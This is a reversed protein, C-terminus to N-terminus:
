PNRRGRELWALFHAAILAAFFLFGALFILGTELIWRRQGEREESMSFWFMEVARVLFLLGPFCGAVVGALFAKRRDLFAGIAINLFVVAIIALMVSYGFPGKWAVKSAVALAGIGATLLLTMWAAALRYRKREAPRSAPPSRSPQVAKGCRACTERELPYDDGCAVCVFRVPNM